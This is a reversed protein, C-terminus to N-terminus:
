IGCNAKSAISVIGRLQEDVDEDEEDEAEEDEESDEAVPRRM